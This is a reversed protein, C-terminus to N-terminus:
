DISCSFDWVISKSDIWIPLFLLNAMKKIFHLDNNFLRGTSDLYCEALASIFVLTSFWVWRIIDCYILDVLTIKVLPKGQIYKVIFTM